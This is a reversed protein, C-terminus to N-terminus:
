HLQWPITSCSISLWFILCECAMLCDVFRIMQYRITLWLFFYQSHMVCLIIPSRYYCINKMTHRFGQNYCVGMSMYHSFPNACSAPPPSLLNSVSLSSSSTFDIKLNLLSNSSCDGSAFSSFSLGPTYVISSWFGECGFIGISESRLTVLM